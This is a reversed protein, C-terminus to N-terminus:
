RVIDRGVKAAITDRLKQAEMQEKMLERVKAMDSAKNAEAIAHKLDNILRTKIGIRFDVILHETKQQLTAADTRMQLSKSLQYHNMALSGALRSIGIDAHSTFYTDAKFGEDSSHIAAEHLIRDFLPSSFHLDDQALDYDIYQAVTLNVLQGDETEIDRYIIEEGHQIILQIILREVELARKDSSHFSAHQQPQQQTQAAAEQQRLQREAEKQQNEIDGGIFRNMTNILTQENMQFNRSCERIYTDRKIQDPIVSVSRVINSIAESRKIPDTVGDLLLRTKFIIFDVQHDGVYNRFEESNHKRSFSDPDDGDPLLLIKVNMGEQLLMDTGRMAAHIGAEDGDYLLVINPTFRRLLKIQHVSLATGSNAVVNELGCQHMAIVDTYGEVMYVCDYKSIARKAHYLGYLERDKHFIDSEPSNVYKQQVGKTRSDLLRGGFASVKGSVNHWPFIVRGAYRDVLTGDDRQYCLGTKILFEKQYGAKLATESLANRRPLAYGLQFKEIIDDRVGRSRFYQQGIAQGDADELLLRHFYAKAWENVVYMSERENQEQRQEDSLEQEKIEINYKRALWRLAEPYSIQEHEMLFSVATGGKGCAFCHCIGKAPSVIFSPTKDDHFPCLGKYNIGAKRLTVFESVVDVIDTADLIKDITLRDIM